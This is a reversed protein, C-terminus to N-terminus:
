FVPLIAGRYKDEILKRIQKSNVVDSLISLEKRKEDGKRIAIIQGSAEGAISDKDEKALADKSLDYGANNALDSILLVLDYNKSVQYVEEPRYTKFQLKQSNELIDKETAKFGAEPNVTLLGAIELLLIGRAKLEPNDPVGVVAGEPLNELTKARGPLINLPAFYVGTLYSLKNGKKQNFDELFIKSQSFNADLRKDALEENSQEASDVEIVQLDVGREKLLPKTAELIEQAEPALAGVEIKVAKDLKEEKLTENVKVKDSACGSLLLIISFVALSLFMQKFKM